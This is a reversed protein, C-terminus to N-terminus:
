VRWWCSRQAALARDYPDDKYAAPSLEPM